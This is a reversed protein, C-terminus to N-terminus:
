YTLTCFHNLPPLFAKEFLPMTAILSCLCCNWSRANCQTRVCSFSIWLLFFPLDFDLFRAKCFVRNLHHLSLSCVPIINAFETDTLPSINLSKVSSEFWEWCYFYVFLDSYFIFIIHHSIKNIIIYLFCTLVCFTNLM